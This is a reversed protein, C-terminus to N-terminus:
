GDSKEQKDEHQKQIIKELNENLRQLQKVLAPLTYEYFTRGMATLHFEPM